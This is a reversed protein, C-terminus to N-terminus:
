PQRENEQDAAKPAAIAQELLAIRDSVEQLRVRYWEAQLRLRLLSGRITDADPTPVDPMAYYRPFRWFTGLRPVLYLVIHAM